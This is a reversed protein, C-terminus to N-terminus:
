PANPRDVRRCSPHEEPSLPLAFSLEHRLRREPHHHMSCHRHRHESQDAARRRVLLDSRALRLELLPAADDEDAAERWRPVPRGDPLRRHVGVLFSAVADAAGAIAREVSAVDVTVRHRRGIRSTFALTVGRHKRTDNGARRENPGARRGEM